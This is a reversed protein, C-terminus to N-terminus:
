DTVESGGVGQVNSKRTAYDGIDCYQRVCYGCVRRYEGNVLLMDAQGLTHKTPAAIFGHTTCFYGPRDAQLTIREYGLVVDPQPRM